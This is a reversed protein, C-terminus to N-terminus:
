SAAAPAAARGGPLRRLGVYELKALVAVVAAQAVVFVYGLGTPVVWNGLVLAASDAVWLLNAIVIAWVAGRSLQPRTAVYAVLAAFPLLILSAPRLLMPPLGLLPELLGAGVLMLAGTAGSAAADALLVRRLFLDETSGTAPRDFSATRNTMATEM